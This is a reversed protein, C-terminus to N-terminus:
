KALEDRIRRLEETSPVWSEKGDHLLWMGHIADQIDIPIQGWRKVSHNGAGM